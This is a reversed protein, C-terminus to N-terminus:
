TEFFVFLESQNMTSNVDRLICVVPTFRSFIRALLARNTKGTKSTIPQFVPVLKALWYVSCM